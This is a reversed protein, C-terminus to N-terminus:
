RVAGFTLGRVLYRQVALTFVMIPLIALMAVAMFEGWDISLLAHFSSLYIPLTMAERTTLIVAYLLENWAFIASLIGTAALGPRVLPVAVRWFFQTRTYGDVLAAEELEIPIDAFFGRLVWTVFSLNMGTYIVVLAFHTDLIGAKEFLMYIPVVFAVPPAMRTSLMWIALAKNGTFPIRALGYAAMAGLVIALVTSVVTVIISNVLFAVANGAGFVFIANYFHEFTPEFWWVPPWAFIDHESKLATVAIVYLPFLSFGVFVCAAAYIGTNRLTRTGRGTFGTRRERRGGADMEPATMTGGRRVDPTPRHLHRRPRQRPHADAGRPRGRVRCGPAPVRDRLHLVAPNRDDRGAGGKTMMFVLEFMRFADVLRILIIIVAVPRLLPVTVRWFIQWLSLGDMRAAEYVYEPLSQLAAFTVLMVFPTWQWVDAVVVSILGLGTDTLWPLPDLGLLGVFFNAMGYNQNFIYFWVLGTAVPMVMMPLIGVRRLVGLGRVKAAFVFALLFGLVFEVAVAFAVFKFSVVVANTFRDDYYADEFNFFGVYRPPTPRGLSWTQFSMYLAYFFPFLNIAMLVVVAPAILLFASRRRERELNM